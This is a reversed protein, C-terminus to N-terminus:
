PTASLYERFRQADQIAYGELDNNFFAYVLDAGSSRVWSARERLVNDPYTGGYRRGFGHFRLYAANSTLRDPPPSTRMDHLCLTA